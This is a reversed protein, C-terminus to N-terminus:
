MGFKMSISSVKQPRVYTRIYTRVSLCKLGVKNPRNLFTSRVFALLSTLSQFILLSKLHWNTFSVSRLKLFSIYSNGFCCLLISAFLRFATTFGVKKDAYALWRSGIAVPNPNHSLEKASYCASYICIGVFMILISNEILM